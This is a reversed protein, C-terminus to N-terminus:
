CTDILLYRSVENVYCLEFPIIRLLDLYLQYGPGICRSTICRSTINSGQGIRYHQFGPGILFGPRSIDYIM